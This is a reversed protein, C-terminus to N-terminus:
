QVLRCFDDILHFIANPPGSYLLYSAILTGTRDWLLFNPRSVSCLIVVVNQPDANLFSHIAGLVVFLLRLPPAIELWGEWSCYKAKLTQSHPTQVSDTFILFKEQHRSQLHTFLARGSSEDPQCPSM